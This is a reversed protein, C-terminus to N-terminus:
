ICCNKKKNPETPENLSIKKGSVSAAFSESDPHVTKSKLSHIQQILQDFAEQINSSTLASTEFFALNHTKSYALGDEKKVEVLHALDAKNGILIVVCDDRVYDKLEKLWIDLRKFTDLRTIDYVIMAGHAGRYYASTVARYKDQGATDWVQIKVPTDKIVITKTSFQVGITGPSGLMFEGWTYRSLINTKGVGWDGVLVIKYLYDTEM